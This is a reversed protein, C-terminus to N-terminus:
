KRTPKKGIMGYIKLYKKTSPDTSFTICDPCLCQKNPVRVELESFLQHCRTCEFIQSVHKCLLCESERDQKSKIVLYELSCWSCKIPKPYEENNKLDKCLKRIAGRAEDIAIKFVEEIDLITQWTDEDIHERITIGLENQLFKILFPINSGILTTAEQGTTKVRYHEIEHRADRLKNLGEIYEDLSINCINHLREVASDFGITRSRDPKDVREYILVWHERRLREKLILEVGQTVHLIAFKYNNINEKGQVYHFLGHAISDMANELLDLELARDEDM